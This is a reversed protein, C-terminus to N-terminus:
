DFREAPFWQTFLPLSFLNFRFFVFYLLFLSFAFIRFNAMRKLRGNQCFQLVKRFCSMRYFCLVMCVVCMLCTKMIDPQIRKKFHKGPMRVSNIQATKLNQTELRILCHNSIANSITIQYRM